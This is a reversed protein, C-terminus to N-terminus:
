INDYDELTNMVSTYRKEIVVNSSYLGGEGYM